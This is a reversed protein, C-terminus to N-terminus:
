PAAQCVVDANLLLSFENKHPSWDVMLDKYGIVAYAGVHKPAVTFGDIPEVVSSIRFKASDEYLCEIVVWLSAPAQYRDNWSVAFGPAISLRVNPAGERVLRRLIGESSYEVGSAKKRFVAGIMDRENDDRFCFVHRLDGERDCDKLAAILNSPDCKAFIWNSDSNSM